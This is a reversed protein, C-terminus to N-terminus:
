SNEFHGAQVSDASSGPLDMLVCRRCATGAVMRTKGNAHLWSAPPSLMVVCKRCAYRHAM